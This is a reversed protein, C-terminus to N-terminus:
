CLLLYRLMVCEGLNTRFNKVHIYRPIVQDKYRIHILDEYVNIVCSRNRVDSISGGRDITYSDSKLTIVEKYIKPPLYGKGPPQTFCCLNSIILIITLITKMQKTTARFHNPTWILL